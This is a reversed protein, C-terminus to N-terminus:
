LAGGIVLAGGSRMVTPAVHLRPTSQASGPGGSPATLWLVVATAVFAGGLSIAVTSGTADKKATDYDVGSQARNPCGSPGCAAKEKSQASSAYAGL